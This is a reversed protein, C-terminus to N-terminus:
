YQSWGKEEERDTLLQRKQEELRQTDRFADVYEEGKKLEVQVLLTTLRNRVENGGMLNYNFCPTSNIMEELKQRQWELFRLNRQKIKEREAIQEDIREIESELIRENERLLSDLGENEHNKGEFKKRKDSFSCADGGQRIGEKDKANHYNM